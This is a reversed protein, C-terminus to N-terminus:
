DSWDSDDVVLGQACGSRCKYRYRYVLPWLCAVYGVDLVDNSRIQDSKDFLGCMTTSMGVFNTSSSACPLVSVLARIRAAAPCGSSSPNHETWLSSEPNNLVTSADSGVLYGVDHYHTIGIPLLCTDSGVARDCPSLYLFNISHLTQRLICLRIAAGGALYSKGVRMRASYELSMSYMDLEIREHASRNSGSRKPKGDLVRNSDVGKTIRV